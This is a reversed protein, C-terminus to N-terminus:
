HEGGRGARSLATRCIRECLEPFPIGAAAASQPMLSTATMGPLTNVELCFLGGDPTLRFDVRSYGGLKLAEHAIVGLRGAERAVPEPLDAPFIEESMGPTYKCEYDFIEHRPIIEGVALARGDLIGVTLERGPVFQEVMVEDDYEAALAMAPAFDPAQKVVSLGVTSGQKSPKVVVPWGFRAESEAAGIAAMTWDATPVGADRFLRKSIDKDMAMASGLRGSGTYPVGVMELLTQLTGDEGPGGHLALFLVEADRVVPIGALGSLLLGRELARLHTISPPTVGVAGGMMRQEDSQQLFGRATDVVSVAHGRSRLAAVVQAASALAVDRESSTGGTLVTIRM